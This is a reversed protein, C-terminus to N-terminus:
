GRFYYTCSKIFEYRELVIRFHCFTQRGSIVTCIGIPIAYMGIDGHTKVGFHFFRLSYMTDHDVAVNPCKPCEKEELFIPTKLEPLYLQTLKQIDLVDTRNNLDRKVGFITGDERKGM